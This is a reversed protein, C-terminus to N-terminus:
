KSAQTGLMGYRILRDRVINRSIGLLRATRVQNRECYVYAKRIVTEDILQYLNATSTGDDFMRDLAAELPSLLTAPSRGPQQPRSVPLRFDEPRISTGSCVLLAHHIANELERINGPWPYSLIAQMAEPTLEVKPYGLRAGYLNLFHCVLPMIDGRRERLPPLDISAVKLRNYLDNRFRGATVAEDLKVNTAAIL